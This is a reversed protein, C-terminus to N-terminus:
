RGQIEEFQNIKERMTVVVTSVFEDDEATASQSILRIWKFCAPYYGM